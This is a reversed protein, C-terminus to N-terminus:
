QVTLVDEETREIRVGPPMSERQLLDRVFEIDEDQAARLQFRQSQFPVVSFRSLGGDFPDMELFWALRLDGRFEEYGSIGEYDNIFDGCGYLIPRDRYIEVGRPHHSSHGHIVDASANDILRHALERQAEPIDYGWNGGWHISVVVLDRPQRHASISEAITEAALRPMDSILSIGPSDTRAAWAAPIGSSEAGFAFVLVRGETGIELIAPALADAASLGAGATRLGAAHLSALTEELGSFGWDLVHNNALVCCDLAAATLCSVNAPHMRYHIGKWRWYDNSRTVSTELNVIRADPGLREVVSLMDGWIYGQDVPQRIPGNAAEALEVYRRADKVYQEHLAPKSSRGFLQDIGRGTMVDGALFLKV